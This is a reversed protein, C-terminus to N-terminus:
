QWSVPINRYKLIAKLTTDRINEITSDTHNNQPINLTKTKNSFFDTLVKAIEKGNTIIKENGVLTIKERNVFKNSLM